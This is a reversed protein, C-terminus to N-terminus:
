MPVNFAYGNKLAGVKLEKRCEVKEAKFVRKGKLAKSHM